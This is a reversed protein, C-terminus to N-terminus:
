FFFILMVVFEDSNDIQRTLVSKMYDAIGFMNEVVLFIM